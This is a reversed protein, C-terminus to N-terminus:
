PRGEAPHPQLVVDVADRFRQWRAREARLLRKGKRTLGYYKRNPGKDRPVWKSTLLGDAEMSHLAPYLSGEKLHLIGDTRARIERAIDYGYLAGAELTALVLSALTGRLLESDRKDVTRVM